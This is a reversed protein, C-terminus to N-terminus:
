QRDIYDQCDQCYNGDNTYKSCRPCENEEYEEVFDDISEVYNSKAIRSSPVCNDNCNICRFPKELENERYDHLGLIYQYADYGCKSCTYDEDCEGYRWLDIYGLKEYVKKIDEVDKINLVEELLKTFGLKEYLEIILENDDKLLSDIDKVFGDHFSNNEQLLKIIRYDKDQTQISSTFSKDYIEALEFIDYKDLLSDLIENSDKINPSLVLNMRVGNQYDEINRIDKAYINSIAEKIIKYEAPMIKNIEDIFNIFIMIIIDYSTKHEENLYYGHLLDNRLTRLVEINNNCINFQSQKIVEKIAELDDYKKICRKKYTKHQQDIYDKVSALQESNKELELLFNSIEKIKKVAFLKSTCGMMSYLHISMPFLKYEDSNNDHNFYFIFKELHFISNKQLAEIKKINISTTQKCDKSKKSEKKNSSM